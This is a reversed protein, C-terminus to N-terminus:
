RHRAANRCSRPAAFERGADRPQRRRHPATGSAGIRAAAFCQHVGALRPASRWSCRSTRGYRRSETAPALHDHLEQEAGGNQQRQTLDAAALGAAGNPFFGRLIHKEKRSQFLEKRLRFTDGNGAIRTVNQGRGPVEEVLGHRSFIFGRRFEREDPQRQRRQILPRARREVERRPIRRIDHDDGILLQAPRGFQGNGVHKPKEAYRVRSAMTASQTARVVNAAIVPPRWAPVSCAPANKRLPTAPSQVDVSAGSMFSSTTRSSPQINGCKPQFGHHIRRAEAPSAM